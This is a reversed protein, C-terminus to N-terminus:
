SRVPVTQGLWNVLEQFEVNLLSIYLTYLTAALHLLSCQEM